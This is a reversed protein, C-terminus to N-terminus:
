APDVSRATREDGRVGRVSQLPETITRCCQLRRLLASREIETPGVSRLVVFLTKTDRRFGRGDKGCSKQRPCVGAVATAMSAATARAEVAASERRVAAALREPTPSQGGERRGGVPEPPDPQPPPM